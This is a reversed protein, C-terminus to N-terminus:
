FVETHSFHWIRSFWYSVTSGKREFQTQPHMTSLNPWSISKYISLWSTRTNDVTTSDPATCGWCDLASSWLTYFPSLRCLQPPSAGTRCWRHQWHLPSLRRSLPWWTLGCASYIYIYSYICMFIYAITCADVCIAVHLWLCSFVKQQTAICAYM